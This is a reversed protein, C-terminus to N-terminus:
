RDFDELGKRITRALILGSVVVCLLMPIGVEPVKIMLLSSAAILVLYAVVTGLLAFNILTRPSM